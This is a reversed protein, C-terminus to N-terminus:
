SFHRLTKELVLGGMDHRVTGEVFCDDFLIQPLIERIFGVLPLSFVQDYPVWVLEGEDCSIQEGTFHDATYVFLIWSSDKGDLLTKMVGNCKLDTVVLGTEEQVERLCSAHIDEFFNTKGGVGTFLDKMPERNRKLLLVRRNTVDRIFCVNGITMKKVSETMM